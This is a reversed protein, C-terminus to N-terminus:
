FIPKAELAFQIAQIIVFSALVVTIGIISYLMNKKATEMMEDNGSATIYQIGSIVFGILAIVGVIGLLWQLFNKLIQQIGGVPGPLGIEAATPVYLGGTSVENGLGNSGPKTTENGLGESPKQVLAIFSETSDAYAAAYNGYKNNKLIQNCQGEAGAEVVDPEDACDNAMCNLYAEISKCEEPKCYSNGDCQPKLEKNYDIAKCNNNTASDCVSGVTALTKNVGLAFLFIFASFFLIKKM